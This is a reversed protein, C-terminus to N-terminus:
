CLSQNNDLMVTNAPINLYFNFIFINEYGFFVRSTVIYWWCHISQYLCFFCLELIYFADICSTFQSLELPYPGLALRARSGSVLLIFGAVFVFFFLMVHKNHLYPCGYPYIGIPSPFLTCWGRKLSCKQVAILMVRVSRDRGRAALLNCQRTMMKWMRNRFRNLILTSVLLSRRSCFFSFLIVCCLNCWM